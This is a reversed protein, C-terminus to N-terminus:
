ILINNFDFYGYYNGKFRPLKEVNLENRGKIPSTFIMDKINVFDKQNM